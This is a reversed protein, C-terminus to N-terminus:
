YAAMYNIEFRIQTIEGRSITIPYIHNEGDFMNAWLGGEEKTLISYKGEPLHIFFRGNADTKVKALPAKGPKLYFGDKQQLEDAKLPEFIWVERETPIGSAREAPRDGDIIGPMFNGELWFVECFLGQNTSSFAKMQAKSCSSLGILLATFLFFIKFAKMM